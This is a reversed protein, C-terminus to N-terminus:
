KSDGESRRYIMRRHAFETDWSVCVLFDAPYRYLEVDANFEADYEGPHTESETIHDISLWEGNWLVVNHSNPDVDDLRRVEASM